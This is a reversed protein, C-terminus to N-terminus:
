GCISISIYMYTYTLNGYQFHNYYDEADIMFKIFLRSKFFYSLSIFLSKGVGIFPTSM